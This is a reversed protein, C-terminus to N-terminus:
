VIARDITIVTQMYVASSFLSLSLLLLRSSLDMSLISLRCFQELEFILFRRTLCLIKDQALFSWHLVWVCVGVVVLWPM